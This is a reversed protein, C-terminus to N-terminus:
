GTLGVELQTLLGAVDMYHYDEAVLGDDNMVTFTAGEVRVSRGTPAIGFLEGQHTGTMVWRDAHCPGDIVLAQRQLRFDPFALFLRAARERVADRGVAIESSGAERTVADEAFVAAVADADHANWAAYTADSVELARRRHDTM